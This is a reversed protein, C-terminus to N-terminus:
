DVRFCSGDRVDMWFCTSRQWPGPLTVDATTATWTGSSALYDEASPFATALFTAGAEKMEADYESFMDDMLDRRDEPTQFYSGCLTHDNVKDFYFPPAMDDRYSPLTDDWSPQSYELTPAEEEAAPPEAAPADEKIPLLPQPLDM